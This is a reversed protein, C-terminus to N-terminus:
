KKSGGRRLFFVVSPSHHVVLQGAWFNKVSKRQNPKQHKKALKKKKKRGKETERQQM